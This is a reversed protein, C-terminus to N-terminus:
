LQRLGKIEESVVRFAAEVAGRQRHVNVRFRGITRIEVSFDLEWDEEFKAKQLDNMVGYIMKVTDAPGLVPYELPELRGDVRVIPPAGTVLHLDSAKQQVAEALLAQLNM